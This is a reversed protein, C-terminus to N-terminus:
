EFPMRIHAARHAERLANESWGDYPLPLSMQLDPRRHMRNGKEPARYTRQIRFYSFLRVILHFPFRLEGRLRKTVFGISMLTAGSRHCM